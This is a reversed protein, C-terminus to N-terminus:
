REGEREREQETYEYVYVYVYVYINCMCVKISRIGKVAAIGNNAILVSRIIRKGGMQNVFVDLSPYYEM